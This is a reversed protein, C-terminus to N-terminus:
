TRSSWSRRVLPRISAVEAKPDLCLGLPGAHKLHPLRLARQSISLLAAAMHPPLSAHLLSTTCTTLAWSSLCHHPGHLRVQRRLGQASARRHHPISIDKDRLYPRSDKLRLKSSNRESANAATRHRPPLRNGSTPCAPLQHCTLPYPRAQSDDLSPLHLHELTRTLPGSSRSASATIV